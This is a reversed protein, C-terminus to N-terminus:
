PQKLSLWPCVFYQWSTGFCIVPWCKAAYKPTVICDSGEKTAVATIRFVTITPRGSDHAASLPALPRRSAATSQPASSSVFSVLLGSVAITPQQSRARPRRSAAVRSPAGLELRLTAIALCRQQPQEPAPVLGNHGSSSSQAGVRSSPVSYPLRGSDHAASLPVLTDNWQQERYLLDVDSPLVLVTPRRQRVSSPVPV